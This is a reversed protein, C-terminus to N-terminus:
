EAVEGTLAQLLAEVESYAMDVDSQAQELAYGAEEITDGDKSNADEESLENYDDMVSEALAGLDYQIEWLLNTVRKFEEVTSESLKIEKKM